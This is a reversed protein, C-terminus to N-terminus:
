FPITLARALLTEEQGFPSGEAARNGMASLARGRDLAM